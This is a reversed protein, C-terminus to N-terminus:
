QIDSSSGLTCSVIYASPQEQPKEEEKENEKADDSPETLVPEVKISACFGRFNGFRQICQVGAISTRFIEPRHIGPIREPIQAILKQQNLFNIYGPKGNLVKIPLDSGDRM